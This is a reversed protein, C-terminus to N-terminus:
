PMVWGAPPVEVAVLTTQWPPRTAGPASDDAPLDLGLMVVAVKDAGRFAVYAHMFQGPRAMPEYCLPPSGLGDWVVTCFLPGAEIVMRQIPLRVPAVALDVALIASPCPDDSLYRPLPGVERRCDIDAAATSADTAAWSPTTSSLGPAPSPAEPRGLGLSIVATLGIAFGVAVLALRLGTRPPAATV